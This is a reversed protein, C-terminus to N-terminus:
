NIRNGRSKSVSAPPSTVSGESKDLFGRSQNSFGPKDIKKIEKEEQVNVTTDSSSHYTWVTDMDLMVGSERRSQSTLISELQTNSKKGKHWEEREIKM